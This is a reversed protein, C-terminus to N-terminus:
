GKTAFRRELSGALGDRFGLVLLVIIAGLLARWYDTLPMVLDELLTFALAGIAPGSVAHIGGLLTMVLADVSTPIALLSPDISGNSFTYVCGALGALAGSFAFALWRHFPADIGIAEARPQSDRIGRLAYGFPAFTARGLLALGSLTVALVLYYYVTRGRAWEPPWIGILGNDGGTLEVWQFAIAYLIQAVALTLMALYVGSLRVIVWGFLSAGLGAALPAALFTVEMRAGLHDVLLAAAYAGLGFWAAHGFSILGGPGMLFGLSTAFLAFVLTDIAVKLGYESVFIPLLLLLVLVVAVTALARWGFPRLPPFSDHRSAASPAEPRGLLGSPRLVLVVAMVLFVLVLTIRPFLLIGFAHLEGILLAALFAGAVSGMGGIVTVVFAEVIIDLDMFPTAAQRPIQLAGALGALTAGLFFVSTFLLRQNVGLAEVMERDETAARVLIGFRTRHFLLWIALLALPGIAILLLDYQPFRYGFIRVFSALGPARPGLVDEPGWLYKVLDQVILVLGFTLLLPFLEPARYIPRLLGVEVVIGITGVAAAAALVALWFGTPTSAWPGMAALLSLACYAGLMYLSGHAFNVIRTVGFIITLGAATLFLSSASALGNLFQVAVFGLDM